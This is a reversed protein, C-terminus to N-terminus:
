CFSLIRNSSLASLINLMIFIILWSELFFAYCLVKHQHSFGISDAYQGAPETQLDRGMYANSREGYQRRDTSPYDSMKDPFLQDGKQGYAHSSSSVYEGSKFKPSEQM